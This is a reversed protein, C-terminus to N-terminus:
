YEKVFREVVEVLIQNEERRRVAIRFFDEGLAFFETLRRVVVGEEELFAFFEEQSRHIRLTYFNVRSPFLTFIGEWRRFAEELFIKEQRLNEWTNRHFGSLDERSLIELAGALIGNMSWPELHRELSALNAPHTLIFGGRLGALAYYKTLSRVLYLRPDGSLREYLSTEEGMFEQFAEDIIFILGPNEKRLREYLLAGETDGLPNSPNGLVVAQIKEQEIYRWLDRRDYGPFLSFRFVQKGAVTFARAYETFLPELILVREVGLVRSLLYIGQTAGNCPLLCRPSFGSIKAMRERYFSLSLPPYLEVLRFLEGWRQRLVEPPGWPNLNASVDLLVRKGAAELEIRRGGHPNDNM